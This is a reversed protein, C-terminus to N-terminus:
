HLRMGGSKKLVEGSAFETEQLLRIGDPDAKGECKGTTVKEIEQGTKVSNMLMKM